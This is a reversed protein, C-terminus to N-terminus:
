VTYLWERAMGTEMRHLNHCHFFWRRGAKRGSVQHPGQGDPPLSVTQELPAPHPAASTELLRFRHGHLAAPAVDPDPQDAWEDVEVDEVVVGSFAGGAARAAPLVPAAASAPTLRTFWARHALPADAASAHTMPWSRRDADLSPAAAAAPWRRRVRARSGAPSRSGLVKRVVSRSATWTLVTAHKTTKAPAHWCAGPLKSGVEAHFDLAQPRLGGDGPSSRGMSPRNHNTVIQARWHATLVPWLMRGWAAAQYRLGFALRLSAMAATRRASAGATAVSCGTPPMTM